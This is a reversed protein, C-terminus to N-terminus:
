ALLSVHATVVRWGEPTRVWTQSQRGILGSGKRQFETNATAFHHDYTTIVTNKLIRDLSSIDRANRFASISEYGYLNETVGYRVTHPSNWFLENLVTLDNHILATEYREFADKVEAIAEPHNIEM